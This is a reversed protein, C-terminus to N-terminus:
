DIVSTRTRELSCANTSVPWPMSRQWRIFFNGANIYVVDRDRGMYHLRDLTQEIWHPTEPLSYECGTADASSTGIEDVADRFYTPSVGCDADLFSLYDGSTLTAGWNRLASITAGHGLEVRIQPELTRLFEASGDSSGNDVYIVETGEFQRAAAIVQPATLMLYRKANLFPVVVTVRVPRCNLADHNTAPLNGEAPPIGGDDPNAGVEASPSANFEIM